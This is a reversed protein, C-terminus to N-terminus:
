DTDALTSTIWLMQDTVRQLLKIQQPDLGTFLATALAAEMAMFRQAQLAGAATVDMRLLRADAPDPTRTMLGQGQLAHILHAVQGKDRGVLDALRQQTCGPQELNLCLLRMHLPGLGDMEASRMRDKLRQQAAGFITMLYVFVTRNEGDSSSLSSAQKKM